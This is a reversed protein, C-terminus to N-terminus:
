KGAGKELREIYDAIAEGERARANARIKRDAKAISRLWEVATIGGGLRPAEPLPRSGNM